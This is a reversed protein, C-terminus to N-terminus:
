YGLDQNLRDITEKVNIFTFIPGNPSSVQRLQSPDFGLSGYIYQVIAGGSIRASYDNYITINEFSRLLQRRLSGVRVTSVVTAILGERGATQHMIYDPLDMGEVFSPFVYGKAEYSYDSADYYVSNRQNWNLTPEIREKNLTSSGIGGVMQAFNDDNGKTGASTIFNFSNDLTFSSKVASVVRSRANELKQLVEREYQQRQKIKKADSTWGQVPPANTLSEQQLRIREELIKERLVPQDYPLDALSVSIGVQTFVFDCITTLDDIFQAARENSYTLAINQVLSEVVIGTIAKNVRGQVLVGNRIIVKDRVEILKRRLVKQTKTKTVPNITIGEGRNEAAVASDNVDSVITNDNITIEVEELQEKIDVLIEKGIFNFNAPLCANFLSTGSFQIPRFIKVKEPLGLKERKVRKEAQKREYIVSMEANARELRSFLNSIDIDNTLLTLANYFITESLELKPDTLQYVASLTDYFPGSAPASNRASMILRRAHAQVEAEAQGEITQVPVATMEDGDFDANYGNVNKLGLTFNFHPRRKIYQALLSHRNITPARFFLVKDGDELQRRVKDGIQLVISDKRNQLNDGAVINDKGITDKPIYALISGDKLMQQVLERNLTTVTLEVSQEKMFMDPYGITGLPLLADPDIVSRATYEIRKGMANHRLLGGKGQLIDILTKSDNRYGGGSYSTRLFMRRIKDQLQNEISTRKTDDLTNDNLSKLRKIIETYQSSIPHPRREGNIYAAPRFKPPLVYMATMIYATPNTGRIDGAQLVYGLDTLVQRRRKIEDIRKLEQSYPGSFKTADNLYDAEPDADTIIQYVRSIEMPVDEGNIIQYVTPRRAKKSRDLALQPNISHCHWCEKGVSEKAIMSLRSEGLFRLFNKDRIMQPSLVGYSCNHCIAQLFMLVRDFFYPHYFKLARGSLKFEIRGYHGPCSLREQLCTRCRAAVDSPGMLPDYLTNSLATYDKTFKTVDSTIEVVSEKYITNEGALAIFTALIQGSFFSQQLKSQIRKAEKTLAHQQRQEERRTFFPSAPMSSDKNNNPVTAAALESTNQGTVTTEAANTTSYTLSSNILQDNGIAAVPATLVNSLRYPLTQKPTQLLPAQMFRGSPAALVGTPLTPVNSKTISPFM